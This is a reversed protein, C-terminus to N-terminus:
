KRSKFTSARQLHLPKAAGASLPQWHGSQPQMPASVMAGFPPSPSASLPLLSVSSPVVFSGRGGRMGSSSSSSAAAASLNHHMNLSLHSLPHNHAHAIGIGGVELGLGGAGGGGGPFAAHFSPPPSSHLVPQLPPPSPSPQAHSFGHALPASHTEGPWQLSFSKTQLPLKDVLLSPPAARSPAAAAAYYYVAGNPMGGGSAVLPEGNPGLSGGALARMGGAAFMSDAREREESTVEKGDIVCSWSPPAPEGGAGTSLRRILASRYLHKRALPNNRLTVETLVLSCREPALHELESLEGIRNYALFLARLKPLTGLGALSRLGNEELQLGRLENLGAFSRGNPELRKIKNKSLVLQQLAPLGNLGDVKTLENSELTLVRLENLGRLQLAAISAIRNFGLELVELAPFCTALFGRTLLGEREKDKDFSPAAVIRNRNLRLVRLLPLPSLSSLDSIHNNDLVLVRLNPFREASLADLHRLKCSNLDLSDVNKFTSHGLHESLAEETLRGAYAERAANAEASDISVGDLVKLRRLAFVVSLRYESMSSSAANALACPNGSLDLILLRALDKVYPLVDKLTALRNNAVYLEQLAHLTEIGALSRLMNDELSLQTLTHCVGSLPAGGDLSTLRNKGLDLKALASLTSLGEIRTLANMELSLEELKNLSELGEINSLANDHLSLKRVNTMRALLPSAMRTLRHHDLEVELVLDFLASPITRASSSGSSRSGSDTEAIFDGLRVRTYVSRARSPGGSIATSAAATSAAASQSGDKRLKALAADRDLFCQQLLMGETMGGCSTLSASDADDKSSARSSSSSSAAGAKRKTDRAGTTTACAASTTTDSALGFSPQLGNLPNSLAETDDEDLAGQVIAALNLRSLSPLAKLLVGSLTRGAKAQLLPNGRLDLERLGGGESSLVALDKSASSSGLANFSLDLVLLARMGSLVGPALKRIPNYSLDLRELQVLHELGLGDWRSLSNFSLILTRLSSGLPELSFSLPAKLHLESLRLFQLARLRPSAEVLAKQLDVRPTLKPMASHQLTHLTRRSEDDMREMRALLSTYDLLPERLGLFNGSLRLLEPDIDAPAGFLLAAAQEEASLQQTATPGGGGLPCMVYDFSVVYEALVLAPDFVHMRKLKTAENSSASPSAATAAGGTSSSSAAAESGGSGDADDDGRKSLKGSSGSSANAAGGSGLLLEGAFEDVVSDVHAAFDAPRVLPGLLSAPGGAAAAAAASLPAVGADPPLTGGPANRTVSNGLFVKAIILEGGPIYHPGSASARASFLSPQARQLAALRPLDAHLVSNSLVLAPKQREADRRQQPSLNANSSAEGGEGDVRGFGFEVAHALAANGGELLPTVDHGSFAPSNLAAAGIFAYHLDPKPPKAGLNVVASADPMTAEMKRELLEEFRNRLARNHLKTVRRIRLLPPCSFPSASSSSAASSTVTSSSASAPLLNFRKALSASALHTHMFHICSRVWADGGGGAASNSGASLGDELRENGGSDLEAMMRQILEESLKTLARGFQPLFSSLNGMQVHYVRLLSSVQDRRSRLTEVSLLPRESAAEIGGRGNDAAHEDEEDQCAKYLRSLERRLTDVAAVRQQAMENAKKLLNSTAGKCLKIRMNYYMQKKLWTAEALAVAEDSLRLSDLTRVHVLHYLAYTHYNCLQTLPNDGYHPDSL